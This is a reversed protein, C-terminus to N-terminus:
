TCAVKTPLRTGTAASGDLHAKIWHVELLRHIRRAVQDWDSQRAGEVTNGAKLKRLRNWVGNNDRVIVVADRVTALLHAVAFAEARAATQM